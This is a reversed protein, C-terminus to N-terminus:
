GHLRTTVLIAECSIFVCIARFQIPASIWMAGALMKVSSGVPLKAFRTDERIPLVMSETGSSFARTAATRDLSERLVKSVLSNSPPASNAM